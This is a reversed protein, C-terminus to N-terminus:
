HDLLRAGGAAGRAQGLRGAPGRGGVPEPQRVAPPGPLEAGPAGGNAGCEQAGRGLSAGACVGGGVRAPRAAGVARDVGGLLGGAQGGAGAARKSENGLRGSARWFAIRVQRQIILCGVSLGPTRCSPELHRCPTGLHRCSPKQRRCSAGFDTRSAEPNSYSPPFTEPPLKPPAHLFTPLNRSSPELRRASHWAGQRAEPLLRDVADCAEMIWNSPLTGLHGIGGTSYPSHDAMANRGFLAKAM